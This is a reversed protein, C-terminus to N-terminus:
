GAAGLSMLFDMIQSLNSAILIVGTIVSLIVALVRWVIKVTRYKRLICDCTNQLQDFEQKSPLRSVQDDLERLEDLREQFNRFETKITEFNKTLETYQKGLEDIKEKHQNCVESNTSEKELTQYYQQLDEQSKKLANITQNLSDVSQQLLQNNTGKEAIQQTHEKVQQRVETLTNQLNQFKEELVKLDTKTKGNGGNNQETQKEEDSM